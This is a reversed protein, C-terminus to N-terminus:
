TGGVIQLWPYGEAVTLTGRLLGTGLNAVNLPVIRTAGVHVKGVLLRRPRLDLRPGQAQRVPLRDIFEHLAADLSPTGQSEEAVRALDLRGIATFYGGFAGKQLLTRADDWEYQCGEVLEDFTKCRRGSPFVFEQPLHHAPLRGAAVPRLEAGEYHCFIADDPNARKCRPCQLM